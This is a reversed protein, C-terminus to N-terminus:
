KSIQDTTTQMADSFIITCKGVQMHMHTYLPQSPCEKLSGAHENARECDSSIHEPM